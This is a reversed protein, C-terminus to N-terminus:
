IKRGGRASAIWDGLEDQVFFLSTLSAMLLVFGTQLALSLTTGTQIMVNYTFHSTLGAALGTVAPKAAVVLDRYRIGLHKQMYYQYIIRGALKHIIIAIAAGQIGFYLIGIIFAPVTVLFTKWLYIKFVLDVKGIAKLVSDTTGGFAHILSGIAMAQMPFVANSWETGLLLPVWAAAFLVFLLMVPGIVLTNYRVVRLYYDRITAPDDQLQGYVPFMVRNLINMIQARLIDTVMFALTYVGLLQAGLFKGILLYDLNKTLYIFCRNLSDFAAFHFIERIAHLSWDFRGSDQAFRKLLPVQFAEILLTQAVLSWVGFGKIALVITVIGALIAGASEAYAIHKFDMDRSLKARPIINFSGILAQLALISIIPQLTPEGYFSSVLPAAVTFYLLCIAVNSAFIFSRASDYHAQTLRTGKLQILASTIGANGLAVILGTFVTAMGLLGFAVPDLAKALILIVLYSFAKSFFLQLTNWFIGSAIKKRM